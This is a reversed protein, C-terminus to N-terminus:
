LGCPCCPDSLLPSARPGSGQKGKVGGGQHTSMVLLRHDRPLAGHVKAKLTTTIVVLATRNRLNCLHLYLLSKRHEVLQTKKPRNSTRIVIGLVLICAQMHWNSYEANAIADPDGLNQAVLIKLSCHIIRSPVQVEKKLNGRHGKKIITDM